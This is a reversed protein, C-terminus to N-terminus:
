ASALLPWSRLREHRTKPGLHSLVLHLEDATWQPGSYSSLASVAAGMDVPEGRARALTLHPRFRRNELDLGTRRGAAVAREALRKVTEVDGGLGCWLVRAPRSDAPFAGAGALRLRPAPTRAAARSLRGSLEEVLSDAVEGYFAVTVHWQERSVYRLRTDFPVAAALSSSAEDSLDLAAFLRL